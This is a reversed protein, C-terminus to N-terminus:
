PRLEAGPEAQDCAADSLSPTGVALMGALSLIRGRNIM